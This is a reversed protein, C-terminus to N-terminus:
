RGISDKWDGTSTAAGEGATETALTDKWDGTSTVAREGATESALTDKWDGTSTVAGEGPAADTATDGVTTADDGGAFLAAVLTVIALSAVILAGVVMPTRYRRAPARAPEPTEVSAGPAGVDQRTRDTRTKM